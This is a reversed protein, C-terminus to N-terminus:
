YAGANKLLRGKRISKHDKDWSWLVWRAKGVIHDEPVFGWFRSDQSNHRNDGMMWYYDQKCTYTDTQEGNIYIKGGRVELTNHEYATIVRRYYPLTSDNLTLVEGKAPIHVPGYNDVSQSRGGDNPFYSKDKLAPMTDMVIYRGAEKFSLDRAMRKTLPMNYALLVGNSDIRYPGAANIDDYSVGLKDLEQMVYQPPIGISNTTITYTTQADHPTALANGDIFVTHDVIQLTEGPLGICRKIYNTCKDSPRVFYEDEGVTKGEQLAQYYTYENGPFECLTTDGAPFNFVVADFRKVHSYGPYRHYPLHIWDLYSNIKTGPIMNHMLPLSLPTEMVRPGYALKSVLLHDGVLLSKEMSSSPISYLEFINGRIIVAAIIAFVIADLWDRGESVKAPPETAPDHYEMGPKLGLLPLYIWPFVVAFTQEWFGYRRFVKATEVVLLLFTFVNIAPVLFYIYWKWSKGCLKIWVVINYVPVVAKWPAVGGKKFVFWLGLVTGAFYLILLIDYLM